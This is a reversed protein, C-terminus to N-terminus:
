ADAHRRGYAVKALVLFVLALIAVGWQSVTPIPTFCGGPRCCLGPDNCHTGVGNPTGGQALCCARDIDACTENPLCCAEIDTCGQGGSLVIGGQGTCASETAVTGCTGNAFCCTASQSQGCPPNFVATACISNDGAYRGGQSTCDSQSVADVCNGTSDICCAGTGLPPQVCTRVVDVDGLATKDQSLTDNDLDVFYSNLLSGSSVPTLQMGYINNPNPGPSNLDIADSMFIALNGPNCADNPVCDTYDVGGASNTRGCLGTYLGVDYQMTPTWALHGGTYQLDASIHPQTSADGSMGRTGVLMNGTASFSLDAVPQTEVCAMSPSPLTVEKMEPGVFAGTGSLGVSWVENAPGPRGHDENWRGFYLRGDNRNVQIGWLREGLPAYGSTGDDPGFPDFSDIIAGAFSVRYIKGDEFNTIYFQRTRSDFAINGLGQGSNPLTVFTSIAGNTGDIKMVKGSPTGFFLQTSALYINPNPDNDLEIGFVPGLNTGNWVDAANNTPNPMENHYQTASWNTICPPNQSFQTCTPVPVGNCDPNRIDYIGVVYGGPNSFTSETAVAVNPVLPFQARAETSGWVVAVGLVFAFLAGREVFKKRTM